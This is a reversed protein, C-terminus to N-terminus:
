STARFADRWTLDFEISLEELAIGRKLFPGIHPNAWGDSMWCDSDNKEMARMIEDLVDAYSLNCKFPVMFASCLVSPMEPGEQRVDIGLTFRKGTAMDLIVKCLEVRKSKETEFFGRELHVGLCGHKKLLWKFIWVKKAKSTKTM